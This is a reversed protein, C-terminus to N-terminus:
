KDWALAILVGGPMLVALYKFPLQVIAAGIVYNSLAYYALMGCGGCVLGWVVLYLYRRYDAKRYFWKVIFRGTVLLVIGIVVFAIVASYYRAFDKLYEANTFVAPDYRVEEVGPVSAIKTIMDRIASSKIDFARVAYYPSFPNDGPLLVEKLDPSVALAKALAQESNIFTVGTVGKVESLGKGTADPSALGSSTLFVAFEAKPMLVYLYKETQYWANLVLGLVVTGLITAIFYTSEKRIRFIRFM